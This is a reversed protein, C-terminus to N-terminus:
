DADFDSLNKSIKEYMETLQKIEAKTCSSSFLSCRKFYIPLIEKNITKLGNPTIQVLTARRDGPFDKRCVYEAKELADLFQTMSARSVGTKEALESPSLSYDEACRLILLIHFRGPSLNFRDYFSEVKLDIMAKFKKCSLFFEIKDPDIKGLDTALERFAADSATEETQGSKTISM